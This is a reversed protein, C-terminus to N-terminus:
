GVRGTRGYGVDLVELSFADMPDELEMVHNLCFEYIAGVNIEAPSFM